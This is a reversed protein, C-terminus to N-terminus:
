STASSRAARPARRLLAARRRRDAPPDTGAVITLGSAEIMALVKGLVRKAVADPKVIFFTRETMSLKGAKRLVDQM